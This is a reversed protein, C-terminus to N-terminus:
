LKISYKKLLERYSIKMTWAIQKLMSQATKPTYEKKRAVTSICGYKYRIDNNMVEM